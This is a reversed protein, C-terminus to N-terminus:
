QIPGRVARIRQNETDVIYLNGAKDFAACRPYNLMANLSPGGDGSFGNQQNGGAVTKIKNTQSDIKRISMLSEDIVFLNGNKDTWAFVPYLKASTAPIDEDVSDGGGAVTTIVQTAADVRRVVRRDTDNDVDVIILNGAADVHITTYSGLSAQTAPGGDGYGQYPAGGGAVNTIIGTAFSVKRIRRNNNDAIYLNGGPDVAISTPYNLTAAIALGGDGTNGEDGNGAVTSIIGTKLDVKRIRNAYTEAIYLNDSSDFAIARPILLAKTAPGGDSDAAELIGGGAVTTIVGTIGEVKRVRAGSEDAVYYNGASDFAISVPFLFAALSAPGNEDPYRQEGNGGVTTIIGTGAAIKRIRFNGSDTFFINGAADVIIANPQNLTAETAPGNDGSFGNNGNGAVTTIIGSVTIKRIRHNGYDAILLNGNRDLAIGNPAVHAAVAPGDDGLYESYGGDGDGAITTIIQTSADIKRVRYNNSDAIYVNGADDVTLGNPDNLDAKSAPGNDGSFGQKGSGAITTIIRTAVDIRRVNQNGADAFFMNGSKDFAIAQPFGLCAKSALGGDVCPGSDSSGAITSIIGTSSDVKRIYSSDAVFMDGAPNFAIGAVVNSSGPYVPIMGAAIALRGDGSTAAEGDGAVTTVVGTRSDIRRVGNRLQDVIYLNGASDQSIGYGAIPAETAKSGDGAFTSGGAVTAIYGAPLTSFPIADIILQKQGLGGRNIVSLTTRGSGVAPLTFTITESNVVKRDPVAVNGVLLVSDASFNKGKVTIATGGRSNAHSPSIETILPAGYSIEQASKSSDTIVVKGSQTVVIGRPSRFTNAQSVPVLTGNRLLVRIRNSSPESVYINGVGDVYVGTPTDLTSNAAELKSPAGPAGQAPSSTSTRITEVEGTEKVRRLTRNGSDAVIFSIPPPPLGNIERELQKALPESELAIGVPTNFRAQDGKGDQAGTSGPKGAITVVTKDALDIRRITHNGSDVVWLNGRTDLAVGQPTNFSAQALSGDAGGAAGTGSLTDVKGAAGAFIRRIAHNSSDSVYLTAQAQDFALFSPNRFLSQLRADNKLGPSKPVGAYTEPAESVSQALLISSDRSNAMYIRRALDQAVGTIEFGVVGSKVSVVTITGTTIVDGAAITLTSFGAKRGQINGTTDITAVDTSLSSFQLDFDDRVKGASDTVLLSPRFSNGENVSVEGTGTGSMSDVIIISAAKLANGPLFQAGGGETLSYTFQSGTKGGQPITMPTGDSQFYSLTGGDAKTKSTNLFILRTSFGSGIAIQAFIFSTNKAEKTLDAVPLTTLIPENIENNTLKLTIPVVPVPSNIELLGTFGPVLNPFLEHAFIAIHNRAQLTRTTSDVLSGFRDLLAYTILAPQDSPNALAVGTYSGANDVFIRASTTPTTGAVGAETVLSGNQSYRFIATGSPTPTGTDPTLVAYGAALGEPRDFEARYVGQPEIAYQFQSSSSDKLRVSLPKGDSGTFVIRGTLKQSSTNILVLQTGYGGGAAIQPFVVPQSTAPATLDAVPLTTYMPDGGKQAQRLTIAALKQDSEFTLSGSFGTLSLGMLQTVFTPLHCGPDLQRTKRAVESGASDRLTFVINATQVSPNVLAIGTDTGVQDVFLRGSLIPESAGVGAQSVLVGQANTYSFLASGVPAATGQGPSVLTYGVQLQSQTFLVAPLSALLLLAATMTFIRSFKMAALMGPASDRCATPAGTYARFFQRASRM